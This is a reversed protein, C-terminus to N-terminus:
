DLAQRAIALLAAPPAPAPEAEFWPSRLAEQATPRLEPNYQLLGALLQVAEPPVAPGLAAGLDKPAQEEFILKGWDPLELVGTHSACPPPPLALSLSPSTTPPCSCVRGARPPGASRQGSDAM